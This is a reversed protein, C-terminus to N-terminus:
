AAAKRRRRGVFGLGGLALGLLPLAAPLPVTAGSDFTISGELLQVPGCCNVSPSFDFTLNLVGDSILPAFDTNLITATTILNSRSQNGVDPHLDFLDNNPNGDFLRGLSFGDLSVDLYENGANLDGRVTLSLTANGTVTTPVSLGTFTILPDAAGSSTPGFDITVAQSATAACALGAALIIHKM